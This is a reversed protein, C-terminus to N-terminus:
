QSWQGVSEKEYTGTKGGSKHVLGIKDFYM